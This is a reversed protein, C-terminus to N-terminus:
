ELWSRDNENEDVSLRSKADSNGDTLMWDYAFGGVTM